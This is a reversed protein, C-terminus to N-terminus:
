AISLNKKPKKGKSGTTAKAKKGGKGESGAGPGTELTQPAIDSPSDGLSADVLAEDEPGTGYTSSTRGKSASPSPHPLLAEQSDSRPINARGNGSSHSDTDYPHHIEQLARLM